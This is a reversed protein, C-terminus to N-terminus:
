QLLSYVLLATGIVALTFAITAQIRRESETQPAMKQGFEDLWRYLM